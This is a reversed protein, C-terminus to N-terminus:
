ESIHRVFPDVRRYYGCEWPAPLLPRFCNSHRYTFSKNSEKQPAAPLSMVLAEIKQAECIV